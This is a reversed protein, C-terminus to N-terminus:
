ALEGKLVWTQPQCIKVDVLDGPQEHGQYPWLVLKNGSTRGSWVKDDNSSPGEVMVQVTKDQLTLNKELSIKNQLDMLRNLRDHKVDEEVQEAM